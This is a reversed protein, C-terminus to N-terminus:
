NSGSDSKNPPSSPAPIGHRVPPVVGSVSPPPSSGLAMRMREFAAAGSDLAPRADIYVSAPMGPVKKGNYYDIVYRVHHGCRDITWDHRDFPLTYGIWNRFRAKPSLDKPRGKFFALKIDSCKDAHASEWKMIHQWTRENVTNHIAIVSQMDEERAAYGKRKLANFFMQESPYVWNTPVNGAAGAIGRSSEQGRCTSDSTAEGKPINSKLRTTSLPRMQGATPHQNPPLENNSPLNM